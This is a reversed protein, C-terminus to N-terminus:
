CAIERCNSSRQFGFLKAAITESYSQKEQGILHYLHPM